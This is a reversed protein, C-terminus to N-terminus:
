GEEIWHWTGKEKATSYESLLKIPEAAEQMITTARDSPALFIQAYIIGNFQDIIDCVVAARCEGAHQEFEDPLCVHVVLGLHLRHM